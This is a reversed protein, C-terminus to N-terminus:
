GKGACVYGSLWNLILAYLMVAKNNEFQLLVFFIPILPLYGNNKILYIIICYYFSVIESQPYFLPADM